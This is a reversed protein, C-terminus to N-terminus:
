GSIKLLQDFYSITKALGEELKTSPQWNLLKKAKTIDPCRQTPDDQPLPRYTIESKSGTLAVIKEALERISYEDPNGVNVPGTKDEELAMMAMMGDILDDVYCFSRTQSGDGYLTIPENKLAQVIFNSVVRGDNPHMHPGYTNFIRMVRISLDHQQEYDHFLTEACRKGEDYCARPGFTNVRGRYTEPQPHIEPDGYVESTSAQLIRAKVRKALGLVNIAGHVSTKTTQVPDFQYHVPSAPCALNYIQDVEVYLPFTVDHRMLEFNPKGLLSLVNNKSGTFFNDVCLVDHGQDVLRQCLHSGLFGAGGTVLVKKQEM